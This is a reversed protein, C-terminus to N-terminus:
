AQGQNDQSYDRFLPIHSLSFLGRALASLEDEFRGVGSRIEEEELDVFAGVVVFHSTFALCVILVLFTAGVIFM